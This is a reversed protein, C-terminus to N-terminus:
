ARKNQERGPTKPSQTTAKMDKTKMDEETLRVMHM